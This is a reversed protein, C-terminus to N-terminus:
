NNLFLGFLNKVKCSQFSGISGFVLKDNLSGDKALKGTNFPVKNQAMQNYLSFIDM